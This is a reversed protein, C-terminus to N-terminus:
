SPRSPASVAEVLFDTVDDLVEDANTENFVEHRAGPYTRHRAKGGLREIVVRSGEVPVLQDDEGHVWLLPLEGFAPGDAVAQLARQWAQLTERKFPGHWVLPDEAYVAGVAPDRSLTGIDLPVDPIEALALMGLAPHELSLLPGSLVVATLSDAYRQVYRTGILGGMSHGVLVVPLDPWQERATDALTHVDTVVAEVDTILVREGDSRGHGIHDSAYVVAGSAVLRDAVHDYRGLHEGYGHVLLVVYSPPRDEDQWTQAAVWGQTGDFGWERSGVVAAEL